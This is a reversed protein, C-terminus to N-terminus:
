DPITNTGRLVSIGYLLIVLSFLFEMAESHAWHHHIAYASKEFVMAILFPGSLALPCVSFFWQNLFKRSRRHFRYVLPLFIGIFLVFLLLIRHPNLLNFVELNHINTENQINVEQIKEPVQYEFIWQGWSEEEGAIFIFFLGLLVTLIVAGLSRRKRWRRVAAVLLLIGSVLYFVASLRETAAGEEILNVYLNWDTKLIALFAIALVFFWGTWFISSSMSHSIELFRRPKEAIM